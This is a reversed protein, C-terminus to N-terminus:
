HNTVSGAASKLENEVKKIGLPSIHAFGLERDYEILGDKHLKQLVNKKFVSQNSYDVWDCLDEATCSNVGPFSIVFTKLIGVNFGAGFCFGWIVYV